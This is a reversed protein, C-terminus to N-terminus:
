GKERMSREDWLYIVHGDPDVLEAGYGWYRKSPAALFPVGKATLARHSAEVDDVQFTRVCRCEAPAARTQELFLTIGADDQLAAVGLKERGGEPAEFELRMGLNAIYWDRSRRWDAVAVSLHDLRVM